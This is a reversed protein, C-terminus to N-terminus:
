GQPSSGGEALWRFAHPASHTAQPRAWRSVKDAMCGCSSPKAVVAGTPEKGRPREINPSSSTMPLTM